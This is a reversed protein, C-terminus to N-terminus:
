IVFGCLRQAGQVVLGEVQGLVLLDARRFFRQAPVLFFQESRRNRGRQHLHSHVPRVLALKFKGGLRHVVENRLQRVAETRKPLWNGLKFEVVVLEEGKRAVLDAPVTGIVTDRSIAYGQAAYTSAAEDIAANLWHKEVIEQRIKM